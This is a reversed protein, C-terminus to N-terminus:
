RIKEKRVFSRMSIYFASGHLRSNTKAIFEHAPTDADEREAIEEALKKEPM